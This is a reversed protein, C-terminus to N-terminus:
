AKNRQQIRTRTLIHLMRPDYTRRFDWRRAQTALRRLGEDDEMLGLKQRWQSTPQEKQLWSIVDAEPDSGVTEKLLDLTDEGIAYGDTHEPYGQERPPIMTGTAAQATAEAWLEGPESAAYRTPFRNEIRIIEANALRPDGDQVYIEEGNVRILWRRPEKKTENVLENYHKIGHDAWQSNSSYQRQRRRKGILALRAKRENHDSFHGLVEHAFVWEPGMFGGLEEESAEPNMHMEVLNLTPIAVGLTDADYQVDIGLGIRKPDEPSKGASSSPYVAIADLHELFDGDKMNSFSKLLNAYAQLTEESPEHDVFLLRLSQERGGPDVFDGRFVKKIRDERMLAQYKRTFAWADKRLTRGDAELAEEYVRLWQDKPETGPVYITKSNRSKKLLPLFPPIAFLFYRWDNNTDHKEVHPAVIIQKKGQQEYLMFASVGRQSSGSKADILKRLVPPLKEPHYDYVAEAAALNQYGFHRATGEMHEHVEPSLIWEKSTVEISPLLEGHYAALGKLKEAWKSARERAYKTNEPNAVGYGGGPAALYDDSANGQLVIKKIHVGKQNKLHEYEEFFGIFSDSPKTASVENKSVISKKTEHNTVVIKKGPRTVVETSHHQQGFLHEIDDGLDQAERALNDANIIANPLLMSAATIALARRWNGGLWALRNWRYRPIGGTEVEYPPRGENPKDVHRSKLYREAFWRSKYDLGPGIPLTHPALPVNQNYRYVNEIPRKPNVWNPQPLGPNPIPEPSTM